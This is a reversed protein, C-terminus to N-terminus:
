RGAVGGQWAVVVTITPTKKGDGRRVKELSAGNIRQNKGPPLPKKYFFLCGGDPYWNEGVNGALTPIKGGHKLWSRQQM